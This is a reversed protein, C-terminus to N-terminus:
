EKVEYIKVPLSKGKVTVEDRYITEVYDKVENYTSESILITANYEKTLSEIRSTLNVNDGIVTYDVLRPSGMHGVIMEGTNIGIGIKLPQKGESLWKENLKALKMKMAIATQVARLAHDEMEVPDNYFAMIADGIYKDLTGNHSLIIEVMETLYENLMKIVEEPSQKESLTTFGRIDSFLVTMVKRQGEHLIGTKDALLKELIQPSVFKGFLQEIQKKEKNEQYTIYAYTGIGTLFMFAMPYTMNLWIRVQPHIFACIALAIFLLITFIFTQFKIFNSNARLMAYGIILCLVLTLFIDIEPSSKLIFKRRNSNSTDADNLINDIATTIIEPGPYISDMPTPHIDTGASTQGIVVIKDKFYDSPIKHFENVSDIKKKDLASSLIVKAVPINEYTQGTGHWNLLIRGKDDVPIVRKGIIINDKTIAFPKREEEPVVALVAALPLSPIYATKDPTVLRYLPVHHRFVVNESGKLNIVGIQSANDLLEKYISTKEFFTINDLFEQASNNGYTLRHYYNEEPILALRDDLSSRKYVASYVKSIYDDVAENLQDNLKRDHKELQEELLDIMKSVKESNRPLSLATGIVVNKGYIASAFYQDEEKDASGEFKLDFVIAKPNGKSIYNVVDGWVSRSWPWRGPNIEPYNELIKTTDDNAALLVIDSDHISLRNKETAIKARWDYTITEIDSLVYRLFFYWSVFMILVLALTLKVVNNNLKQM